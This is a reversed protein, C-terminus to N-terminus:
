VSGPLNRRARPLARDSQQLAERHTPHHNLVYIAVTRRRGPRRKVSCHYEIYWERGKGRSLLRSSTSRNRAPHVPAGAVGEEMEDAAVAVGTGGVLLALTCDVKVAVALRVGVEAGVPVGNTSVVTAVRAAVGDGVGAIAVGGARRAAVRSLM